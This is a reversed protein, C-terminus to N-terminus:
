YLDDLKMRIYRNVAFFTSIFAIFIGLAATLGFLKLFTVRDQLEYIDPVEQRALYIVGALLGMAVVSALVGQIVGQWLFPRQIFGRTAGVLQMSRILFRKSYMALRITNNILAIAIFLLIASFGILVLSIKQMNDNVKAILDPSYVVEKVSSNSELGSVIWQISDPHAYDAKLNLEITNPIPNVGDLFDIFDEGLEEQLEKAAQEKTKLVASKSYDSADITKQLKSVTVDKADDNLYVQFRINEKVHTGLKQANLLILGLSGLMFLVLAIGIVTTLYSGRMRRKAIKDRQKAM